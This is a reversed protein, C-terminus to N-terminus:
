CSVVCNLFRDLNDMVSQAARTITTSNSRAAAAEDDERVRPSASSPSEGEEGAEIQEFSFMEAAFQGEPLRSVCDRIAGLADRIAERVVADAPLARLVLVDLDELLDLTDLAIHLPQDPRLPAGPAHVSVLNHNLCAFWLKARLAQRALDLLLPEATTTTTAHQTTSSLDLSALSDHARVAADASLRQCSLPCTHTWCEILERFRYLLHDRVSGFGLSVLFEMPQMGRARKSPMVEEDEKVRKRSSGEGAMVAKASDMQCVYGPKQGAWWREARVLLCWVMAEEGVAGSMGAAGAVRDLGLIKALTIAECFRFFSADKWETFSPMGGEHAADDLNYMALSLFFSTLVTELTPAQGFSVGGGTCASLRLLLIQEILQAAQVRLQGSDHAKSRREPPVSPMVFPTALQAEITGSSAETPSRRKSPPSTPLTLGLLGLLSISLALATFGPEQDHSKRSGLKPYIYARPVIGPCLREYLNEYFLATRKTLTMTNLPDDVMAGEATRRPQLKTRQEGAQGKRSCGKQPLAPADSATLAAFSTRRSGLGLSGMIHGAWLKQKAEHHSHLSQGLLALQAAGTPAGKHQPDWDVEEALIGLLDLGATTTGAGVSAM